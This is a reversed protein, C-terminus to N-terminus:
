YNRDRYKEVILQALKPDVRKGHFTNLTQALHHRNLENYRELYQTMVYNSVRVVSVLLLV